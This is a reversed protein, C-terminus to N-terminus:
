SLNNLKLSIALISTVLLKEIEGWIKTVKYLIIGDKLELLHCFKDDNFANASLVNVREEM